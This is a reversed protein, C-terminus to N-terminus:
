QMDKELKEIARLWLMRAAEPSKGLRRAITEFPLDDWYRWIV